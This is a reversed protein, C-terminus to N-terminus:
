PLLSVVDVLNRLVEWQGSQHRNVDSANAVFITLANISPVRSANHFLQVPKAIMLVFALRTSEKHMRTDNM